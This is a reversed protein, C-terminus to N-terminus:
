SFGLCWCLGDESHEIVETSIIAGSHGAFFPARNVLRSGTELKRRSSDLLPQKNPRVTALRSAETITPKKFKRTYSLSKRSKRPLTEGLREQRRSELWGRTSSSSPATCRSNELTAAPSSSCWWSSCRTASRWGRSDRHLQM